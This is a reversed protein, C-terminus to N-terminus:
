PRSRVDARVLEGSSFRPSDSLFRAIRKAQTNKSSRPLGVFAITMIDHDGM